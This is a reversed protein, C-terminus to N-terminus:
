DTTSASFKGHSGIEPLWPPMMPPPQQVSTDDDQRLLAVHESQVKQHVM